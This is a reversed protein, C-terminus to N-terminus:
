SLSTLHVERAARLGSEVAGQIWAHVRTTHEGAFHVRGEPAVIHQFLLEEQDPDFLAFAGGAFEDQDWVMSAGGEFEDLIQPHIEAVNELAQVLRDTPALAGWQRAEGSWTYSALLVGRGTDRGHEPYYVNRVPLDTVTAGGFIGDDDEWFRRQSQFFIKTASDYHLQRIARRKGSSLPKLMEVHRLVPFPVTVIAYDGTLRRQGALTRYYVTVSSADQDIATMKAGFCIREQLDPLFARPLRDMGGDIQVMDTYYEGVEERLLELLASNMMAEQNLLLGFMEIAGESWDQAELFERVSFGNYRAIIEPWAADGRERLRQVIPRIADEWLRAATKGRERKAVDFGLRDPDANIDAIRRRNGHVYYYARPNDMTFSSVELGWREVYAMTLDHSRPIRMAGAEAYLGHTFPARLTYVRGGVRHRAELILPDHGARLLEYAAVLGAMGAGVVIVRKPNEAKPRLGEHIIGLYDHSARSETMM